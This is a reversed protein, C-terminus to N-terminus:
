SLYRRVKYVTNGIGAVLGFALGVITCWPFTGLWDDLGVGIGTALGILAASMIGMTM